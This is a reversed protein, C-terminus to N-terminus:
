EDEENEDPSQFAGAAKAKAVMKDWKPFQKKAEEAVKKNDDTVKMILPPKGERPIEQGELVYRKFVRSWSTAKYQWANAYAKPTEYGYLLTLYGSYEVNWNKSFKFLDEDFLIVDEKPPMLELPNKPNFGNAYARSMKKIDDHYLHDLEETQYVDFEELICDDKCIYFLKGNTIGQDNGVVYHYDQLLQHLMPKGTKKIKEMMFSSVTKLECIVDMLKQGKYKDVFKEIATFFFPPLGPAILELTEKARLITEKAKGWDDPAGVVYDLKGSVRALRPLKLEARIQRKKLMGASMLVFGFIWEWSDGAQFKRLSRVNPPNTPKVAYMRLYRDCLAKGLESAYLYNRPVLIRNEPRDLTDNWISSLKWPVGIIQPKVKAKSPM